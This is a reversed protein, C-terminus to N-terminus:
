VPDSPAADQFPSRLRDGRLDAPLVVSDQQYHHGLILLDGGLQRKRAVIAEAIETEGMQQYKEPLAPQWLM